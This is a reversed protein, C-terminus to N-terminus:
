VEAATLYGDRIADEWRRPTREVSDHKPALCWHLTRPPHRGDDQTAKTGPVLAVDAARGARYPATMSRRIPFMRQSTMAPQDMHM